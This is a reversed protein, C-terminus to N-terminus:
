ILVNPPPPLTAEVAAALLHRYHSSVGEVSIVCTDYWYSRKVSKSKTTPVKM